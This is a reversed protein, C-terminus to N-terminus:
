HFRFLNNFSQTIIFNTAFGIALGFGGGILCQIKRKARAQREYGLIYADSDLYYPNSVTEHRIRVKPLNSAALYGFPVIPGLINGTLGGAIGAAMSGFLSGRAKFGKKADREGQMFLRMEDRSFENGSITDQSYYYVFGGTNAFRIGFLEDYEVHMKKSSDVIDIITAAGLSTDLVTSVYIKGNMLFLSDKGFRQAKLNLSFLLFALGILFLRM